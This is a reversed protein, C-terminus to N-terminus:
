FVRELGVNWMTSPRVGGDLLPILVSGVFRVGANTQYKLGFSADALHDAQDPVNTSSIQLVSPSTFSIPEPPVLGSSGIQLDTAVEAVLTLNPNVLRDFGFTAQVSNTQSEATRIAMGANLFPSWDNVRGSVVGLVRVSTGGTGLFNAEDGVPLRADISAGVGFSNTQHLNAKLRVGVDGIGSANGDISSRATFPSGTEFQHAGTAQGFPNEIIALSSGTMSARVFPVLVGLDIRDTLGFAATFAFAVFNLQVDSAVDIIDHEFTPSGLAADQVNQHPFRFELGDLPVGRMTSLNIGTANVGVFYTGKGLTQAREGLIPGGSVSEFIPAGAEFGVLVTGSNAATFPIQGLSAAIASPMFDILRRAETVAGPIYHQGHFTADVDLCLPEGCTGFTFLGALQDSLTQASLPTAFATAILALLGFRRM